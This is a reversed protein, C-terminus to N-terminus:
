IGVNPSGQYLRHVLVGGLLMGAEEETVSSRTNHHVTRLPHAYMMRVDNTCMVACLTITKMAPLILSRGGRESSSSWM